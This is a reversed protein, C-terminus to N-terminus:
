IIIKLSAIVHKCIGPYTNKYPCTCTTSINNNKIDIKIIYDDYSGECEFIFKTPSHKTVLPYVYLSNARSNPNSNSKIYNQITKIDM